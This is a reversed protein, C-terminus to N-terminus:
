KSGASTTKRTSSPPPLARTCNVPCRVPGRLWSREAYTSGSPTTPKASMKELSPGASAVMSTSMAVSNASGTSTSTAAGEVPPVYWTVPTCPLVVCPTNARTSALVAGVARFGDSTRTCPSPPVDM